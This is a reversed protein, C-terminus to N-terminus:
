ANKASRLLKILTNQENKFRVDVDLLFWGQWFGDPSACFIGYEGSPTKNLPQGANDYEQLIMKYDYKSLIKTARENLSVLEILHFRTEFNSM